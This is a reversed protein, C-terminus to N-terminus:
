HIEFSKKDYFTGNFVESKIENQWCKENLNKEKKSEPLVHYIVAM